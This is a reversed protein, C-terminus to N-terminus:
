LFIDRGRAIPVQDPQLACLSDIELPDQTQQSWESILVKGVDHVHGPMLGHSRTRWLRWDPRGREFETCFDTEAGLSHPLSIKLEGVQAHSAACM